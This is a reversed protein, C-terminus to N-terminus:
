RGVLSQSLLKPFRQAIKYLLIPIFIGATLGIFFHALRNELGMYYTLTRIMSSAMPHWLYISYSYIGIWQINNMKPVVFYCLLILNCSTIFAFYDLTFTRDVYGYFSLVRLITGTIAVLGIALLLRRNPYHTGYQYILVGLIFYPALEFAKAIGLLRLDSVIFSTLHLCLAMVVYALPGLKLFVHITGIVLIILFLSYLYWLHLYGRFLQDILEGNEKGILTRIVFYIVSVVVAPLLLTRARNKITSFIEDKAPLMAVFLIGALATFLPMRLLDFADFVSRLSSDMPFKLGFTPTSGFVHFGVVLICAITRLTDVNALRSFPKERKEPIDLLRKPLLELTGITQSNWNEPLSAIVNELEISVSVYTLSDGGLDTFTRTDDDADNGFVDVFISKVSKTVNPKIKLKTEILSQKLIQYDFKGTSLTPFEALVRIEISQQPLKLSAILLKNIAKASKCERTVVLLKEDIGTALVDFNNSRCIEEVQDLSIRNGFVKIFRSIRGTIYFLGKNTKKALDGTKLSELEKGKSLDAETYAYGMMVNPGIYILEGVDGDPVELGNENTIKLSGGPVPIGISTPNEQTLEPPLYTMRPSAETQGYMVYFKAGVETAYISFRCVNSKSLKGGAQTFYKISKPILNEYDIRSLLDYSHPVGAFSTANSKKCFEWFEPQIISYNNFVLAAGAYLHSNVISLGYSYNTPLNVVGKDKNDIELYKCISDANSSLNEHSLRVCKPSGTSGSTSLLICLDEHMEIKDSNLVDVVISKQTTVIANPKFCNVMFSLMKKNDAPLLLGVHNGILLAVYSILWNISPECELIVLQRQSGIRDAVDKAKMILESYTISGNEDIAVVANKEIKEFHEM